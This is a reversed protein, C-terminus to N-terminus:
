CGASLDLHAAFFFYNFLLTVSLPLPLTLSYGQLKFTVIAFRTLEPTIM